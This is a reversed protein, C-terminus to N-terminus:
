AACCAAPACARAPPWAGGRRLLLRLLQRLLHRREAALQAGRGHKRCESGSHLLQCRRVQHRLLSLLLWVYLLQLLLLLRLLPVPRGHLLQHHIPQARWLAGLHRPVLHTRARTRAHTCAVAAAAAAAAAEGDVLPLCRTRSDGFRGLAVLTSCVGAAPDAARMCTRSGHSSGARLQREHQQQPLQQGPQALRRLQVVGREAGCVGQQQALQAQPQDRGVLLAAAARAPLARQEVQRV